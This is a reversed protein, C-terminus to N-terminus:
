FFFHGDIVTVKKKKKEYSANRAGFRDVRRKTTPVGKKEYVAKIPLSLNESVSFLLGVFNKPVTLHFILVGKYM